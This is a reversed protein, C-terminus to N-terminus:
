IHILATYTEIKKEKAFDINYTEGDKFEGTKIIVFYENRLDEEDETLKKKLETHFYWDDQGVQEYAHLSQIEGRFVHDRMQDYFWWWVGAVVLLCGFVFSAYTLHRVTPRNEASAARQQKYAWRCVILFIFISFFFPGYEKGLEALATLTKSSVEDIKSTTDTATIQALAATAAMAVLSPSLVGHRLLRKM